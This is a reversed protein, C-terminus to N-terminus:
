PKSEFISFECYTIIEGKSLLERKLLILFYPFHDKTIACVNVM